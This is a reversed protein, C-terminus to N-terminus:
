VTLTCSGNNWGSALLTATGSIGYIAGAFEDILQANSKPDIATGVGQGNQSKRWAEFTMSNDTTLELGLNTTKAM